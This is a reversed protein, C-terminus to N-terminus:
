KTIQLSTPAAPARVTVQFPNSPPTVGEGGPGKAALVSFYNGVPLSEITSVISVVIKGSADPTPKNLNLIRTAVTSDIPYIRLEYNTLIAVSNMMVDHDASAQFEVKTPNVVPQAFVFSPLFIFVLILIIKKIM